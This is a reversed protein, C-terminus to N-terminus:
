CKGCKAQGNANANEKELPDLIRLLLQLTLKDVEMQRDRSLMFLLASTALALSQSFDFLM